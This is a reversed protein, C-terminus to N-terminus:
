RHAGQGTNRRSIGRNSVRSGGINGFSRRVQSGQPYNTSRGINYGRKCFPRGLYPSPYNGNGCGGYGSGGAYGPGSPYGSGSINGYGYGDDYDAPPANVYIVRRQTPRNVIIIEEKQQPMEIVTRKPPLTAQPQPVPAPPPPPSPQPAPPPPPPPEMRAVPIPQIEMLTLNGCKKPIFFTAMQDEIECTVLFGELDYGGKWWVNRMVSVGARPKFVMWEFSTGDPLSVEEVGDDALIASCIAELADESDWDPQALKLGKLIDKKHLPFKEQLALKDEISSMLPAGGLRTWKSVPAKAHAWFPLLAILFFSLFMLTGWVFMRERKEM